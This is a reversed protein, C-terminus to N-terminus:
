SPSLTHKKQSLSLSLRSFSVVSFVDLLVLLVRSRSFSVGDSGEGVLESKLRSARDDEGDLGALGDV